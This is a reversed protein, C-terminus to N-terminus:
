LVQKCRYCRKEKASWLWCRCSRGIAQFKPLMQLDITTRGSVSVRQTDFGVFSFVLVANVNKIDISYKGNVDSLVGVATGEIQITAGPLPKGNEDTVTGTIKLQQLAASLSSVDSPTLIIQRDYVVFNIGENKLFIIL